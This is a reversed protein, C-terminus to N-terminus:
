WGGIRLAAIALAEAWQAVCGFLDRLLRTVLWCLALASAVCFTVASWIVFTLYTM